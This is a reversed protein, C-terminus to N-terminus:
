ALNYLSALFIARGRKAADKGGVKGAVEVGM